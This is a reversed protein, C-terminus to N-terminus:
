AARDPTPRTWEFRSQPWHRNILPVALSAGCLAVILGNPQDRYRWVFARLAVAAAYSRRAAPHQPTTMPDSIMFFAFLLVASNGIQQPWM